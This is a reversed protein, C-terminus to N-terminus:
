KTAMYLFNARHIALAVQLLRRGPEVGDIEADHVCVHCETFPYNRLAKGASLCARDFRALNLKEQKGLGVTLVRKAGMGPLGHLLSTKGLGREVDGSEILRGLEGGTAEDVARTAPSLLDSDSVAVVLCETDIGAPSYNELHLKM